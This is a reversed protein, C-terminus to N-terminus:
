KTRQDLILFCLLMVLKSCYSAAMAYRILSLVRRSRVFFPLTRTSRVTVRSRRECSLYRRRLSTLEKTMQSVDVSTANFSLGSLKTKKVLLLEFMAQFILVISLVCLVRRVAMVVTQLKLIFLEVIVWRHLRAIRVEM